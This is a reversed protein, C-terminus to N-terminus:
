KPSEVVVGCISPVPAVSGEPPAYALTAKVFSLVFQPVAAFALRVFAAATVKTSLEAEHPVTTETPIQSARVAPFRHNKSVSVGDRETADAVVTKNAIPAIVTLM